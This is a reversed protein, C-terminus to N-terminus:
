RGIGTTLYQDLAMAANYPAEKSSLNEWFLIHLPEGDKDISDHVFDMAKSKEQDTPHFPDAAYLKLGVWGGICAATGCWHGTNCVNKVTEDIMFMGKTTDQVQGVGALAESLLLKKVWIFARLEKHSIGLESAKLYNSKSM